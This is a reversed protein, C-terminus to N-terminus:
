MLGEHHNEGSNHAPKKPRPQPTDTEAKRPERQPPPEPRPANAAERKQREAAVDVPPKDGADKGVYKDDAMDKGPKTKGSKAFRRRAIAMQTMSVMVGGAMMITPTLEFDPPLIDDWALVCLNYFEGTVWVGDKEYGDIFKEDFAPKGGHELIDERIARMVRNTVEAALVCTGERGIRQYGYADRWNGGKREAKPPRPTKPPPPPPPKDDPPPPPDGSSKEDAAKSGHPTDSPSDGPSPAPTDSKAPLKRRVSKGKTADWDSLLKAEAKSRKGRPKKRISSVKTGIQKRSLGNVLSRYLPDRLEGQAM